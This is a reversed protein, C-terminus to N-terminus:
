SISYQRLLAMLEAPNQTAAVQSELAAIDVPEVSGNAAVREIKSWGDRSGAEIIPETQVPEQVQSGTQDAPATPFLEANEKVWNDMAAPDGAAEAPVFKALKPNLGRASLFESADQTRKAAEFAETKARLAKNDALVRELERRLGGGDASNIDFTEDSM